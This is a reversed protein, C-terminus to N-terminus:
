NNKNLIEKNRGRNIKEYHENMNKFRIGPKQLLHHRLEVNLIPKYILTFHNRNGRSEKLLIYESVSMGISSQSNVHWENECYFM